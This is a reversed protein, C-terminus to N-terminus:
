NSATAKYTPSRLINPHMCARSSAVAVMWRSSTFPRMLARCHAPPLRWGFVASSMWCCAGGGSRAETAAGGSAPLATDLGGAKESGRSITALHSPLSPCISASQEAGFIWPPVPVPVRSCAAAVSPWSSIALSSSFRPALTSKCLLRPSVASWYAASRPWREVRSRRSCCEALGSRGFMWPWVARIKAAPVPCSAHTCASSRASALVSSSSLRSPRVARCHASASPWVAIASSMRCCAAGGCDVTEAVEGSATSGAAHGAAESGAWIKCDARRPSGCVTASPPRPSPNIGISLQIILSMM